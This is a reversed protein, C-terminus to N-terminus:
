RPTLSYEVLQTRQLPHFNDDSVMTLRLAGTADQWVSLGELNDHRFTPTELLTAEDTLATDTPRFSRLRSRFGFGNFARELIYLRGDPGFDAGAVQFPGRRAIEGVQTWGTDDLRWVPFPRTLQGSREPIAYLRDRSDASLAEIGGNSALDEAFPLDPLTTTAGDATTCTIRHEGEFSVCIRGDSLQALGESDGNALTLTVGPPTPVPTIAQNRIGTVKAGSRQLDARLLIARDGLALLSIGDQSIELGSLGGVPETAGPIDPWNVTGLYTLQDATAAPQATSCAAPVLAALLWALLLRGATRHVKDPM